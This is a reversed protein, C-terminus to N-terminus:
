RHDMLGLARMRDPNVFPKSAAGGAAAAAAPAQQQQQQQQPPPLQGAM